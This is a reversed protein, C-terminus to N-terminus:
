VIGARGKVHVVAATNVNSHKALLYSSRSGDSSVVTLVLEVLKSLIDGARTGQHSDLGAILGLGLQLKLTENLWFAM